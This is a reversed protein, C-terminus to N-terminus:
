LRGKLDVLSDIVRDLEDKIRQNHVERVNYGDEASNYFYIWYKEREELRNEPCIELIEAMFAEEGFENWDQQLKPSHHSHSLSNLARYHENLRREIDLSQGVYSKGNKLNFIRYVGSIM